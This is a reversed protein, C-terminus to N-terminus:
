EFVSSYSNFSFCIQCEPIRLMHEAGDSSSKEISILPICESVVSKVKAMVKKHM